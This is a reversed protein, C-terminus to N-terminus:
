PTVGRLSRLLDHASEQAPDRRLIAQAQQEAQEIAEVLAALQAEMVAVQVDRHRQPSDTFLLMSPLSTAFYDVTAPTSALMQVHDRLGGVLEDARERLQLRRCALVSFYTMESYPQPAMQQFDGVADAARRWAQAAREPQGAADWADGLVLMLQAPNALEHRAEGLQAPTDIAATAHQVALEGDGQELARQALALHAREWARLVLGEGGEWPQFHRSGLVDLAEQPRDASVLMGALEVSLDDREAVAVRADGRALRDLRRTLSEGTRKALQDREYWLRSDRPALTLAREYAAVAGPADGHVNFSAVALNRWVVPDSGDLQASTRWAALADEHRGHAYWWHGLLGHARADTADAQVAAELALADDLRGPFNWDASLARAAARMRVAGAHDADRDLIAAQHYRATVACAPQGVARRQDREVALDLLRVATATEGAGAYELAVDVTTQADLEAALGGDADQLTLAWADLPDLALTQTLQVAAEEVRGLRRLLLTRLNRGQLHDPEASLCQEVRVLAERDRHHRADIRALQYTAQSRWGRLWSAKAFADYAEADRQLRLLTLGLLYHPEGDAPNPNRATLRGLAARLHRESSSFLGQQYRRAALATHAGVNEPDRVLAERWYPEPSRTAHRYQQLHVGILVLEEVSGADAPQPPETAPKVHADAHPQPSSWVLLTQDAHRVTLTLQDGADDPPLPVRVRQSVVPELDLRERHLMGSSSSSLTVEAGPLSRTAQVVVDVRPGGDAQVVAVSVAADLTAQQLPGTGAIPYWFQSFTTTEGPALFSFDPQNDTFVGAMLEIYAADDDALNRGWAYGFPANGWTWQKKGVAYHHDAWHVFGTASRHDYGGFYDGTSDVCMYSTPVPINRYWDLRDGPVRLESGPHSTLHQRAPYDVGYYTGRAAPFTSVARKAHDAVVHVDGPFFSQYDAHVRAAVNAWWLFTQTQESRNYLRVCLELVARDPSLRFGHMGKMRAFPDHDSCWVTVSGDPNHDLTVATPLYTGPRHHQPWNLEIGGAIWPGTLGVLAPKIVTNRYFMDVTNAKDFAVHLRGGLEPLVMVRLWQNELHYADWTHPVREQSIRDHFPLPYVRGSSGQYVRNDLFAPYRDPADPLYTPIVVPERWAAVPAGLLHAPTPPLEFTADALTM